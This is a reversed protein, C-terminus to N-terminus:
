PYFKLKVIETFLQSFNLDITAIVNPSLPGSVTRYTIFNGNGM